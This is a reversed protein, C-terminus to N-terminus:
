AAGPNEPPLTEGGPGQRRKWFTSYPFRQELNYYHNRMALYSRFTHNLYNSWPELGQKWSATGGQTFIGAAHIGSKLATILGSASLPDCSIAADGIAMWSPGAAIHRFSSGAAACWPGFVASAAVLRSRTHPAEALRARFEDCGRARAHAYLDTDTMYCAIIETASVQASYFWGNPIAEILTYSVANGLVLVQAVIGVGILQDFQRRGTHRQWAHRGRGSADIFFRTLVNQLNAEQVFQLLHGRADPEVARVSCGPLITAGARRAAASLMAEFRGRDIHWGPGAGSFMFDDFSLESAGWASANLWVPVPETAMFGDWVGLEQLIQTCAAPLTEGLRREYSTRRELVLVDAGDRALQLAAVCGAPGGGIIAVDYIRRRSAPLTM